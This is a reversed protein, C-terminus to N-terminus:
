GKPRQQAATERVFSFNVIGNIRRMLGSDIIRTIKYIQDHRNKECLSYIDFLYEVPWSLFLGSCTRYGM